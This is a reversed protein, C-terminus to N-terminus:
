PQAVPWGDVYTLPNFGLLADSFGLGVTHNLYHYYLVETDGDRLVGQGGPAYTEGNSGYVLTGGGDVLDKGNKDVFPGRPGQSRGVRISYEQGAPPLNNPDLGCCLGRSVWLYYFGDNYSIYAGELAHPGSPDGCLSNANRNPISISQPEFALHRADPETSSVPSLLDESLPVQYIGNWYSGFTLYGQGDPTVLTSPDIANSQTYPPVDSGKGTGTQVVVGHDYWDGPGPSNSTAVGVASDRCGAESVSYYCYFKGDVEIVTPAWPAKRDGKPIVSDADLVTGVQQWPGAMDPATFILIHEGVQYLYYEDGVRLITPDHTNHHTQRPPPFQSTEEHRRDISAGLGVSFLCMLGLMSRM